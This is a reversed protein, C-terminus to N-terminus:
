SSTINSSHSFINWQSSSQAIVMCHDATSGTITTNGKPDNGPGWIEVATADTTTVIASAGSSFFLYFITGATSTPLYYEVTSTSGVIAMGGAGTLGVALTSPQSVVDLIEAGEIAVSTSATLRGGVTMASSFTEEVGSYTGEIRIPALHKRTGM